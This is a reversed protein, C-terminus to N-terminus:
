RTEHEQIQTILAKTASRLAAEPDLGSEVAQTILRAQPNEPHIHLHLM